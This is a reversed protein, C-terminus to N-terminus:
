SNASIHQCGPGAIRSKGGSVPTVNIQTSIREKLASVHSIIGILKGDQHLGALTELATELAEEDLSGFGEDLFLSDVRVKQSAMRSLGLALALSVIFSEGGSLNKTSRIVGAQYNDIVNLELPNEVDHVLLYRDSMLILQRNAHAIMMEFTLGQAFNRYKKGDASGILAHLANWRSCERKQSDILVQKAKLKQKALENDSLKQKIGGIKEVLSRLTDNIASHQQQLDELSIDTLKKEIEFTLRDNRDKQRTNIEAQKQDLKQAIQNLENRQAPTLRASIFSEENEFGANLCTAQFDPELKQLVLERETISKSLNTILINVEKLKDASKDRAERVTKINSDAAAVKKKWYEEEEDPVKEGFLEQRETNLRKFEQDCTKWTKEINQLNETLTQNFTELINIEVAIQSKRSEIETKKKQTSLWNDLRTQLIKPISDLKDELLEKIGCAQLKSITNGRLEEIKSLANERDNELNVLTLQSQEKIQEAHDCLKEIERLSNDIDEEKIVMDKIDKELNEATNILLSLKEIRIEIEDAEPVNGLAYPHHESGCLPCPKGDLLNKRDDELATIKNLFVLERLLTDRQSRYERLLRNQLLNELETIKTKVQKKAIDHDNKLSDKIKNQQSYEKLDQDNQKRLIKIAKEIGARESFANKITNLQERIGSLETVLAEDGANEKLYGTVKEMEQDLEFIKKNYKDRNEKNDALQKTVKTTESNANKLEKKKEALRFDLERVIKVIHLNKNQEEFASNLNKEATKLEIEKQLLKELLDPSQYQYITRSDNETKQQIRLSRLTAFESDLEAATIAKRLKQRQILFAEIEQTVEEAEIKLASLQKKLDSITKLWIISDSLSQNEKSLLDQEKLGAAFEVNLAAEDEDNLLEIGSSAAQLKELEDKEERLREHVRISIESYIGTGTIQELLPSRQDPDAQLFAAFGGQALLISRTFRDFDMGTKEVIVNAVQRKNTELIKGTLVESIEHQAEALNGDAKKRSRHQSWHCRFKGAQTEFTVEAFCEGTQRSMIENGSKNIAKLRPTRGYLALCIADLITSKGAGTPGTISFIGNSTYEPETFDLMWEGYLSNLNKFRIELIKM